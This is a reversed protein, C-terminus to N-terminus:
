NTPYFDNYFGCIEEIIDSAILSPIGKHLVAKDGAYGHMFVGLIAAEESTYKQALLGTLIGTLVDGSGGTAMGPNGTSNFYVKGERTAIATHAGKLVIVLNLEKSKSRLLEIKEYDNNSVGFLRDFEKPHPTLISGKPIKPFLHKNRSIINLAGADLVLPYGAKELLLELAKVTEEGEYFGPGVGAVEFKEMDPTKTIINDSPDTLVMAEPISSQMVSYGCKPVYATVLGAGSRCCARTSLIAAGMMGYSGAVILAKGYTGKHSYKERVKVFDKILDITILSYDFPLSRLYNEDLGIPVIELKGVYKNNCPLYFSLKPIQFTVTFDPQVIASSENYSDCYLGSAIDISVVTAGSSNIKAIVEAFIGTVPRTLGSGFLADIVISNEQISPVSAESNIYYIKTIESLRKENILFDESKKGSEVVYVNVSYDKLILMRAVALGDGGNNGPGCFVSIGQHSSFRQIFWNTFALSAREMLDISAILENEITFADVARIASASLIKM